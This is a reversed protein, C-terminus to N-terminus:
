NGDSITTGGDVVLEHGTIFGAAPSALFLIASAVEDPTGIRRLPTLGLRRASAEPSSLIAKAWSTAILGPAVSNARVGQPGWEVALNRALQALAAKTLGYLGVAKNGRRGAISGTLVISGGGAAAMRPAVLSTLQLAHHVNVAFLTDVTKADASGMPGAPGPVGANCILTDIRCFRAEAAAVLAALQEPQTVDTPLALVDSGNSSLDGGLALLAERENSAIVLRAGAAAFQRTIASGIGGTAGTILATHGALSFPSM